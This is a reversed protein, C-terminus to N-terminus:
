DFSRRGGKVGGALFLVRFRIGQRPIRYTRLYVQARKGIRRFNRAIQAFIFDFHVPVASEFLGAQRERWPPHVSRTALKRGERKARGREGGWRGEGGEGVTIRRGRGAIDGRKRQRERSSSVVLAKISSM